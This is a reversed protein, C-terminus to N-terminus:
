GHSELAMWSNETKGHCCENGMGRVSNGPRFQNLEQGQNSRRSASGLVLSRPVEIPVSLLVRRYVPLGTGGVGWVVSGPLPALLRTMGAVTQM